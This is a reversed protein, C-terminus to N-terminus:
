VTFQKFAKKALAKCDERVDRARIHVRGSITRNPFQEQNQVPGSRTRFLFAEPRSRKLVAILTAFGHDRAVASIARRHSRDAAGDEAWCREACSETRTGASLVRPRAASEARVCLSLKRAARGSVMLGASDGEPM